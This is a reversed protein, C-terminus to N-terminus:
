VFNDGHDMTNAIRHIRAEDILRRRAPTACGGAHHLVTALPKVAAFTDGRDGFAEANHDAVRRVIQHRYLGFCICRDALRSLLVRVEGKFRQNLKPKKQRKGTHIERAKFGQPKQMQYHTEPRVESM